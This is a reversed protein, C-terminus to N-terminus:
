CGHLVEEEVGYTRLFEYWDDMPYPGFRRQFWRSMCGRWAYAALRYRVDPGRTLSAQVVVEQCQAPAEIDDCAVWLAYDDGRYYALEARWLCLHFAAHADNM